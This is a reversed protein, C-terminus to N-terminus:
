AIGKDSLWSDIQAPITKGPEQPDFERYMKGVLDTHLATLTRDKLLLVQKRLGMMYGVELAVNPNFEDSELREFVAIGFECGHMYTQINAYLDDHFERDRALVGTLGHKKLAKKIAAEIKAHVPTKGFRMMIFCTSSANRHAAHFRKLSDHILAPPADSGKVSRSRERCPPLRQEIYDLFPVVYGRIAGGENRNGCEIGCDSGFDDIKMDLAKAEEILELGVSAIQEISRADPPFIEHNVLSSFAGFGAHTDEKKALAKDLLAKGGFGRLEVLLRRITPITEMWELLGILRNTAENAGGKLAVQRRYVFDKLPTNM